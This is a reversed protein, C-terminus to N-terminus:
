LHELRRDVLALVVDGTRHAQLQELTGRADDAALRGVAEVALVVDGELGILDVVLLVGFAEDLEVGEPQPERLESPLLRRRKMSEQSDCMPQKLPPRFRDREM